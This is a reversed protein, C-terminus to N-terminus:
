KTLEPIATDLPTLPGLNLEAYSAATRQYTRVMASSKHGTRATVWAETKGLALSITVFTSRLDHARIPQRHESRDFLQPRTVGARRLARRFSTAYSVPKLPVLSVPDRFILEHGDIITFKAKWLALARVVSPDLAWARPDDTKNKDLSVVGRELDVDRWCLLVAEKPRFGERDLTGFFLRRVVPVKTCGLLKADEDPYIFSKAKTSRATPIDGRQIPQADLIMLPAVAFGLVRRVVQLIQRMTAIALGPSIEDAYAAVQQLLERGNRGAFEILPVHGIAPLVYKELRVLDDRASEKLKCTRPAVQHLKGTVWLKALTAFSTQGNVGLRRAVTSPFDGTPAPEARPAEGSLVVHERYWVAAFRQADLKTKVPIPLKKPIRHASCRRHQGRM